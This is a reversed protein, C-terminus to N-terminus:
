RCPAQLEQMQEPVSLKLVSRCGLADESVGVISTREM